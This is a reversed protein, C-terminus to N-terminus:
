LNTHHPHIGVMNHQLLQFFIITALAIMEKEKKKLKKTVLKVFSYSNFIEQTM